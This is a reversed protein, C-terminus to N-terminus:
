LQACALALPARGQSISASRQLARQARLAGARAGAVIGKLVRSHRPLRLLLAGGSSIGLGFVPLDQLGQQMTWNGLINLVPQTDTTSSYCYTNTDSAEPALVAYGRALAQKTM